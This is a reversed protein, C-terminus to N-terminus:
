SVKTSRQRTGESILSSLAVPKFESNVLDFLKGGKVDWFWRYLAGFRLQKEYGIKTLNSCFHTMTMSTYPAKIKYKVFTEEIINQLTLLKEEERMQDYIVNANSVILEQTEMPVLPILTEQVLWQNINGAEGGTRLLRLQNKGILLLFIAIFDARLGYKALREDNLEINLVNETSVFKEDHRIQGVNGIDRVRPTVLIGEKLM